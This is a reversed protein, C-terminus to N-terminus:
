SVAEPRMMRAVRRHRLAESADSSPDSLRPVVPAGSPVSIFRVELRKRVANGGHVLSGGYGQAKKLSGSSLNAFGAVWTLDRLVPSSAGDGM